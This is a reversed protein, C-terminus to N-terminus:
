AKPKHKPGPGPKYPTSPKKPVEKTGPKVKPKSPATKTGGDNFINKM